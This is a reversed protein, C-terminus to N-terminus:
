CIFYSVPSLHANGTAAAYVATKKMLSVTRRRMREWISSHSLDEDEINKKKKKKKKLKSACTGDAECQGPADSSSNSLDSLTM